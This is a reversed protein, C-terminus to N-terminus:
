RQAEIEVLRVRALDNLAERIPTRSLGFWGQFEHDNLHEGAELAGDFIVARIQEM